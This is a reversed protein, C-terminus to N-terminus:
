VIRALRSAAGNPERLQKRSDPNLKAFVGDRRGGDASCVPGAALSSATFVLFWSDARRFIV